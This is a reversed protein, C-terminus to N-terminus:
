VSWYVIQELPGVAAELEVKVARVEPLGFVRRRFAPWDAPTGYGFFRMSLFARALLRGEEAEANEWLDHYGITVFLDSPVFDQRLEPPIQVRVAEAIRAGLSSTHFDCTLSTGEVYLTTLQSPAVGPFVEMPIDEDTLFKAWEDDEGVSRGVDIPGIPGSMAVVRRLCEQPPDLRQTTYFVLKGNQSM